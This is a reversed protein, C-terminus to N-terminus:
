WVFPPFPFCLQHFPTAEYRLSEEIEEISLSYDEALDAVSDGARWREELIDTPVGKVTPRGFRIEPDIVVSRPADAAPDRSFPFLLVPVGARSEVRSQHLAILKLLQLRDASPFRDYDRGYQSVVWEPDTLLKLEEDIGRTIDHVRRFRRFLDELHWTASPYRQSFQRLVASVIFLRALSRFSIRIARDQPPVPGFDDEFHARVRKDHWFREYFELPHYPSIPSISLVVWVPVRLYRAADMYTYLPMEVANQEALSKPNPM